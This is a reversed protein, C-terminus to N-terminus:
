YLLKYKSLPLWINLRARFKKITGSPRFWSHRRKQGVIVSENTLRNWEQQIFVTVINQLQKGLTLYDDNSPQFVEVSPVPGDLYQSASLHLRIVIPESQNVGWAKAAEANLSNGKINLDIDIEDISEYERLSVASDSFVNRVAEMDAELQQHHHLEPDCSIFQLELKELNSEEKFFINEEKLS